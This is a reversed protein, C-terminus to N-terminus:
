LESWFGEGQPRSGIGGTIFLTKQRGYKGLYPTLAAWIPLIM